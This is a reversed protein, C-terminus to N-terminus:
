SMTAIHNQHQATVASLAPGLLLHDSPDAATELDPFPCVHEAFTVALRWAAVSALGGALKQMDARTDQVAIEACMRVDRGLLPAVDRFREANM